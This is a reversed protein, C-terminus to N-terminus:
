HDDVAGKVRLGWLCTACALGALVGVLAHPLFAHGLIAYIMTDILALTTGIAFFAAFLKLDGWFAIVLAFLSLALYRGAMVMPLQEMRHDTLALGMDSDVAFVIAFVGTMLASILLLVQIVRRLSM